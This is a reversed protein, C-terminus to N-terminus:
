TLNKPVSYKFDNKSTQENVQEPVVYCYDATSLCHKCFYEMCPPCGKVLM